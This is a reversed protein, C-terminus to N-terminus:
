ILAYVHHELSRKRWVNLCTWSAVVERSCQFGRGREVENWDYSNCHGTVKLADEVRVHRTWRGAMGNGITVNVPRRVNPQFTSCKLLTNRMHFIERWWVWCSLSRNLYCLGDCLRELFFWGPSVLFSNRKCGFGSMQSVLMSFMLIM